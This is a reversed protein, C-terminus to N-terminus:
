HLEEEAFFIKKYQKDDGLHTQFLRYEGTPLFSGPSFLAVRCLSIPLMIAWAGYSIQYASLSNPRTHELGVAALVEVHPAVQVLVGQQDLSTGARIADWGGRADFGFRGGVACVASFPDELKLNRIDSYIEKFGKSVAKGPDGFLMNATLKAGVQQGAFLKLTERGDGDLWHSVPITKEGSQLQIPLSSATLDKGNSKKLSKIPAPFTQAAQSGPPWPGEIGDPTIVVVEAEALFTLVIGFPNEEGAARLSFQVNARDSWDFGGEADGLLVDAAELFGICAFVQGPNLLDVPISAQAM